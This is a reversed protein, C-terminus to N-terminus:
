REESPREGFVERYVRAFYAPDRFGHAYAIEAVNRDSTRLAERAALLRVRRLFLTPTTGTLAKLKRFLQTRSLHVAAALAEVGFDEDALRAEIAATVALVFTDTKVTPPESALGRRQYRAHLRAQREFIGRLIALLEPRRFPKTLYAAAGAEVAVLRAADGAKATLMVVPIHDTVLDSNILHLLELGSRGPMMQDTLVLDPVNARCHEWAADGDAVFTLQYAGALCYRLYERLEAHDEAV